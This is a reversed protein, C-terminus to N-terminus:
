GRSREGRKPPLPSFGRRRPRVLPVRRV